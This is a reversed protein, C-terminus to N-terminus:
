STFPHNQIKTKDEENNETNGKYFLVTTEAEYNARFESITPPGAKQGVLGLPCWSSSAAKLFYKLCLFM